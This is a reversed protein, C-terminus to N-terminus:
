ISKASSIAVQTTSSYRKLSLSLAQSLQLRLVRSVSDGRNGSSYTEATYEASASASM